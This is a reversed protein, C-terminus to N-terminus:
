QTRPEMGNTTLANAEFRPRIARVEAPRLLGGKWTYGRRIEEIVQGPPGDIDVVEVVVMQEPDVPRGVTPIRVVGANAMTRTLRQQILDYGNLLATLLTQREGRAQEEAHEIQQCIRQHYAATFRRQWWSQRAYLENLHTLSVPSSPGVLRASNKKWQERGRELAEDLEALTMAFSKDTTESGATVEQAAASRFTSAADALSTLSAEVREELVRSSRTQLKLEHRLATFEEVLRDLGVRQLPAIVGNAGEDVEAAEQRTEQLWKRFWDLIQEDNEIGTM